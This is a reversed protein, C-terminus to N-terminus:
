KQRGHSQRSHGTLHQTPNFTLNHIRASKEGDDQGGEWAVRWWSQGEEWAWCWDEAVAGQPKILAAWGAWPTAFEIWLLHGLTGGGELAPLWLLFWASLGWSRSSKRSGLHPKLFHPAGFFLILLHTKANRWFGTEAGKMAKGQSQRRQRTGVKGAQGRVEKPSPMRRWFGPGQM